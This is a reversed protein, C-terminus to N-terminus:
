GIILYIKCFKLFRLDDDIFNKTGNIESPTLARYSLSLGFLAEKFGAESLVRVYAGSRLNDNLNNNNIM